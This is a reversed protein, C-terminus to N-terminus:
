KSDLFSDDDKSEISKPFIPLAGQNAFFQTQDMVFKSFVKRTQYSQSLLDSWDFRRLPRKANLITETWSVRQKTKPWEFHVLYEIMQPDLLVRM